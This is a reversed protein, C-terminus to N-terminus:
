PPPRNRAAGPHRLAHPPPPALVRPTTDPIGAPASAVIYRIPRSPYDAQAHVASALVVCALLAVFLSGHSRMPDNRGPAVRRLIAADRPSAGLSRDKFHRCATTM